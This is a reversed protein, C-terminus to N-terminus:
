FINDDIKPPEPKKEYDLREVELLDLDKEINNNDNDKIIVHYGKLQQPEGSKNERGSKPSKFIKKYCQSCIYEKKADNWINLNDPIGNLYVLAIIRLKPNKTLNMVKNCVVCIKQM